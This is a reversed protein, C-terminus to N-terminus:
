IRYNDVQNSNLLLSEIMEDIAAHQHCQFVGPMPLGNEVREMAYKGMTSVDHTLMVRGENAAWALLDPDEAQYM